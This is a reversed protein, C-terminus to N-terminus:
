ILWTVLFHDSLDLDDATVVEPKHDRDFSIVDLYGNHDHTPLAVLHFSDLIANMKM